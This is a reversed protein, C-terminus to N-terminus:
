RNAQEMAAFFNDFLEADVVAVAESEFPWDPAINVSSELTWWLKLHRPASVARSHKGRRGKATPGFMGAGQAVREFVGMESGGPGIRFPDRSFPAIFFNPRGALRGPFQSPNTRATESSRAAVPVAVGQPGTKEGGEAHLAMPGYLSGVRATPDADRRDAMDMQISRAVFPGRLTFHEGLNARLRDRVEQATRTLALATALPLQRKALDDLDKAVEALNHRVSIRFPM